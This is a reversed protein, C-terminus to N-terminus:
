SLLIANYYDLSKFKKDLQTSVYRQSINNLYEILEDSANFSLMKRNECSIIYRMALLVAQNIKVAGDSCDKCVVSGKKLDFAFIDENGCEICNDLAPMYGGFSMLRLEYVTKVKKVDADKYALAYLTNLYLSLINDDANNEGLIGYTIDSLYSVLSLKVIDCSIPYFSEEIDASRVSPLRGGDYLSFTGYSLMQSSAAVSSKAKVAGYSIAKIIGVGEGFISLIRHGEGYDSQKIIVGKVTTNAM